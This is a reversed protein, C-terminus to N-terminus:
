RRHPDVRLVWRRRGIAPAASIPMPSMRTFYEDEVSGPIAPAVADPAAAVIPTAYEAVRPPENYPWHFDLSRIVADLDNCPRVGAGCRLGSPPWLNNDASAGRNGSAVAVPGRVTTCKGGNGIVPAAARPPRASRPPRGLTQSFASLRFFRPGAGLDVQVLGLGARFRLVRGRRPRAGRTAPLSRRRSSSSTRARCSNRIVSRSTRARSQSGGGRLHAQTARRNWWRAVWRPRNRRRQEMYTSPRALARRGM